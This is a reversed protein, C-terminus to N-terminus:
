RIQLLEVDFVLTTRPPVPKQVEVGDISVASKGQEGYALWWPVILTRKEGQRMTAFAEDWGKIVHGTGIRFIFPAHRDRSSDFKSGDLLYGDYDVVLEGGLPAPDGTGPNREIYRLGSPNVHANGYKDRLIAADAESLQPNEMIQRMYKNAPEGPFKRRFIGTRAQFAIFALVLGLILLIGYQRM